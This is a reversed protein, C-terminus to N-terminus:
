APLHQHEVVWRTLRPIVWFSYIGLTIIMFFWWKVYNGFLGGGTGTFVIRRGYVLTHQAQWRYRMCLAWPLALGLTFLTLLFQALGVLFFSGAGGDFQFTRSAPPALQQPYGAVPLNPQSMRPAYLGLRSGRLRTASVPRGWTGATM